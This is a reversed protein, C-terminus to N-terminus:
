KIRVKEPNSEVWETVSDVSEPFQDRTSAVVAYSMVQCLTFKWKHRPAMGSITYFVVSSDADYPTQM